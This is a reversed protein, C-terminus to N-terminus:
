EVGWIGRDIKYGCEICELWHYKMNKNNVYTEEKEIMSRELCFPCLELEKVEQKKRVM